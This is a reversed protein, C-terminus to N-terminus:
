QIVAYRESDLKELMLDVGDKGSLITEIMNMSFGSVYSFRGGLAPINDNRANLNWFIVRPLEYGYASWKQAISELLTTVGQAGGTIRRCDDHWYGRGTSAPGCSICGDFEMDSFIYLTQPMEDAPCKTQLATNLLMDFTAEINTNMAWDAQRARQFKDYIDVGEFRVLEPHGSFTVFHDAFPGKGREAIYAGMSVAAAMPQGNMSGSVDVIALGREERGHYYDKLCSWYKDWILRDTESPKSWNDYKFIQEAIDVPNLVSANVEKTTDKAFDAYSQVAAQQREIDHRAFANKYIMGAKSPIKDFEIEDWRNESMLREVINIRNRLVSLTKRYQKHNMGFHQRTINALRRSEASSTNESKLWKALLSPTKCEVDLALQEKMFNFADNELPTGVFVYLDDWRGFEPVYRLNRRAAATDWSALDKMIVRFFRREGQGGRVDRIYFLCKLAYVPNEAYAKRFMLIVDSDSRNRMAAGMAFMDLLDSKTTLHKIAHNETYGINAADVLGNMFKNSM